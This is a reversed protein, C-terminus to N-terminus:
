TCMDRTREGASLSWITSETGDGAQGAVAASTPVRGVRPLATAM